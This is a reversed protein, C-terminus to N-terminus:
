IEPQPFLPLNFLGPCVQEDFEQCPPIQCYGYSPILLEVKAVVKLIITICADICFTHDGVFSGNACIVSGFAKVEFPIISPQPVYLIVDQSVTIVTEGEGPNDEADLFTIIVPIHIDASVRAFNPCDEFREIELNTVKTEGGASRCGTFTLPLCPHHPHFKHVIVELDLEEMQRICADFVKETQICVRECLGNLPNGCIPGPVLDPRNSTFFSM